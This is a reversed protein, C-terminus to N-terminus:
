AGGKVDGSSVAELSEKIKTVQDFISDNFHDISRLTALATQPDSDIRELAVKILFHQDIVDFSVKKILEQMQSANMPCPEPAAPVVASDTSDKKAVM